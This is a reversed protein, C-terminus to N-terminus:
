TAFQVGRLYRAPDWRSHLPVIWQAAVRPGQQVQLLFERPRSSFPQRSSRSLEGFRMNGSFLWICLRSFVAWSDSGEGRPVSVVVGTSERTQSTMPLMASSSPRTIPKTM